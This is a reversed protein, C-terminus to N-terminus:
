ERGFVAKPSLYYVNDFLSHGAALGIGKYGQRKLNPHPYYLYLASVGGSFVGFQTSVDMGHHNKQLRYGLGVKPFPFPVPGGGISVYGFENQIVVPEKTSRACLGTYGLFKFFQNKVGGYGVIHAYRITKVCRRLAM